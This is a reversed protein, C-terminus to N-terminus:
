HERKGYVRFVSQLKAIEATTFGHLYHLLFRERMVPTLTNLGEFGAKRRREAMVYVEPNHESDIFEHFNEYANGDGGLLESFRIENASHKDDNKSIRWEGRRFEHYVAESVSIEEYRSTLTNFVTICYTKTM